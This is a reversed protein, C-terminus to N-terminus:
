VITMDGQLMQPRAALKEIEEAGGPLMPWYLSAGEQKYNAPDNAYDKWLQLRRGNRDITGQMAMMDENFLTHRFFLQKDAFTSSTFASDLVLSGIHELNAPKPNHAAYVDYLTKGPVGLGSSELNLLQSIPEGFSCAVSNLGPAPQLVVAFPFEWDHLDGATGNQAGSAMQSMGLWMSHSDIRQFTKVFTSTLTVSIDDRVPIHNTLPAEFYSCSHTANRPMVAYGDLQWIFQMNASEAGDRLCKVALNPGYSNM